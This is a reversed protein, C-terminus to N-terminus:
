QEAAVPPDTAAKITVYRELRAVEKDDVYKGIEKRFKEITEYPRYEEFEHAMRRGVGPITRMEEDTATNLDIPVFVYQAFRAVEDKDVYKGIEKHFEGLNVYPRYELFEHTMRPGIGPVLKIEDESAANLDIPEFFRIYLEKRQEEPLHEALLKDLALMEKFPRNELIADAAPATIGPLKLMEERTALNPYFLSREKGGSEAEEATVLPKGVQASATSVGLIALLATLLCALRSLM